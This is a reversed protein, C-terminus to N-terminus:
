MERRLGMRLVGVAAGLVTLVAGVLALLPLVTWTRPLVGATQPTPEALAVTSITAATAFDANPDEHVVMEWRDPPLYVDLEQGRSLDRYRYSRGGINVRADPSPTFSVPRGYTGDPLKFEAEVENGRVRVVRAQFHAFERGDRRVIDLCANRANPFQSSIATGFQIEGCDGQAMSSLPWSLALLATAAGVISTRGYM